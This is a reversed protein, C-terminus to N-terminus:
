GLPKLKLAQKLEQVEDRHATVTLLSQSGTNPTPGAEVTLLVQESRGAKKWYFVGAVPALLVLAFFAYTLTPYLLSLVLSLCLIGCAALLTLFIALFWSPRVFGQFTVQHTAADIAAVRYARQDFYQQLRNLLSEEPEQAILRVQETRDKVSARIFFFLGVALLLTLLFTSSLITTNM